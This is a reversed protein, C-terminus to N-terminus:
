THANAPAPSAGQCHSPPSHEYVPRACDYSGLPSASLAVGHSDEPLWACDPRYHASSPPSAHCGASRAGSRAPEGLAVPSEGTRMLDVPQNRAASPEAGGQAEQRFDASDELAGGWSAATRHVAQIEDTADQEEGDTAVGKEGDDDRKAPFDPIHLFRVRVRVRVLEQCL